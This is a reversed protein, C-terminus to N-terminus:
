NRCSAEVWDGFSAPLREIPWAVVAPESYSHLEVIREILADARAATTKFIAPVETGSEVAGEWRYISRCPGMINVCAALRTEVMERGIRQAEALDAFVAYVTLASV